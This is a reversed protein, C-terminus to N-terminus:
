GAAAKYAAAQDPTLIQSVRVLYNGVVYDYEVGLVPLAKEVGQVYSARAKADSSKTFQEISGGLDVAGASTDQAETSNVRTDIWASKAIYGNPRGLLNNPDTAATFTITAGIPIGAAKFRIILGDPGDAVSSGAPTTIASSQTAVILSATGPVSKTSSSSCAAVPAAVLLILLAKWM